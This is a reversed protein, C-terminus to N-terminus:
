TKIEADILIRPHRLPTRSSTPAVDDPALVLERLDRAEDLGMGHARAGEQDLTRGPDALGGQPALTEAQEVRAPKSDQTGCRRGGLRRERVRPQGIQELGEVM